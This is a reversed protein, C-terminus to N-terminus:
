LYSVLLRPSYLVQIRHVQTLCNRSSCFYCEVSNDDCRYSTQTIKKFMMGNIPMDRGM